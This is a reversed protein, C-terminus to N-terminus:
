TGVVSKRGDMGSLVSELPAGTEEAGSLLGRLRRWAWINAAIAVLCFAVEIWTAQAPIAIRLWMLGVHLALWGAHLSRLFTNALVPVGIWLLPWAYGILRFTATGTFTGVLAAAIGYAFILLLVKQERSRTDALLLKRASMVFAPALALIGFLDAWTSVITSPVWDCVVIRSGLVSTTLLPTPCGWAFTPRWLRLGTWNALFNWVTKGAIYAGTSMGHINSAGAPGIRGAILFGAAATLLTAGAYAYRGSWLFYLLVLFAILVTSERCLQLALLVPIALPECRLLAVFLVSLLAAHFFDNMYATRYYEILLPCFLVAPWFWRESGFSRVIFAISAALLLLACTSVVMFATVVSLGARILEGALLPHLVRGSFPKPVSGAHGTAMAIYFESNPVVKPVGLWVAAIVTAAISLLLVTYTKMHGELATGMEGSILVAAPDRSLM